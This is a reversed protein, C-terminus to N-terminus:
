GARTRRPPSSPSGARRAWERIEDTWHASLGDQILYVRQDLPYRSREAKLFDLWPDGGKHGYQRASLTQHYVNLCIYEDYRTGNLKRYNAPIRDPSTQEFM